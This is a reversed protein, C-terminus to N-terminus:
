SITYAITTWTHGGDTTKLLSPVNAETTGIAWGIESSVFDLRSVNHFSANPSLEKWHQGGDSTMFLGTGDSAWGHNGDIFDWATASAVLPTGSQWTAGGNHTVYIDLLTANGRNISVPLIGDNATFFRPSLISLYASGHEPPLPLTQPHWTTGGDHTVYFLAYDSLPSAGTVWGTTASSFGLGSKSGGFPLHGPPPADTSSALAVAVRVWAKGGDTTRFIEVAEASASHAQESLLWGNQANIFTIRTVISTQVTTEQWTQGGDTSYFVATIRTGSGPASVAVWALSSTLFEAVVSQLNATSPYNPTVDKWQGGGDATRAIRGRDTIAWGTKVDIMHITSLVGPQGATNKPANGSNNQHAHTLVVILTGVLLTVFLAAAIIGVSQQWTRSESFNAHASNMHDARERQIGHQQRTTMPTSPIAIQRDELRKRVHALVQIHEGETHYIRRLDQILRQNREDGESSSFKDSDAM